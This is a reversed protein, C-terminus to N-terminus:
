DAQAHPAAGLPDLRCVHDPLNARVLESNWESKTGANAVVARLGDEAAAGLRLLPQRGSRAHYGGCGQETTM